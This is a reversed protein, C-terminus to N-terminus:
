DTELTGATGISQQWSIPTATPLTLSGILMAQGDATVPHDPLRSRLGTLAWYNNDWGTPHAPADSTSAPAEQWRPSEGRLPELNTVCPPRTM